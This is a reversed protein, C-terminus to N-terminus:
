LNYVGVICIIFIVANFQGSMFFPFFYTSRFDYFIQRCSMKVSSVSTLSYCAVMPLCVLAWCNLFLRYGVCHTHAMEANNVLCHYVCFLWLEACVALRYNIIKRNVRVVKIWKGKTRKTYSGHRRVNFTTMITANRASASVSRWKALVYAPEM